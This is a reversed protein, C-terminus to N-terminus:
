LTTVEVVAKAFQEPAEQPVNHGVQFTYHKYPGTFHDRYASGNGPPTFPDQAGDITITPLGITPTNQLKNEIALYEPESPALSLRWRYNGIVIPVFDPNNFAAASRAYTQTSYDWDPSNYKWIYDCIAYRYEDLGAM